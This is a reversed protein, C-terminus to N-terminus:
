NTVLSYINYVNGRNVVKIVFTGSRRPVWSAYCDGSYDTDSAILNGNDDYVYATDTYYTIFISIKM